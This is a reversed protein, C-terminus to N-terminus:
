GRKPSGDARLVVGKGLPEAEVKDLQALLDDFIADDVVPFHRNFGAGLVELDRRTLLGVSAIRERAM